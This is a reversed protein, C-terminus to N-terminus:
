NLYELFEPLAAKFKEEVMEIPDSSEGGAANFHGGGNFHQRAFSNAPFKTKSRFSMKRSVTRDIILVSLEIGIISLGYNVL